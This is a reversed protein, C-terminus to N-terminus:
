LYLSQNNMIFKMIQQKGQKIKDLLEYNEVYECISTIENSIHILKLCCKVFDGLFFEGKFKNIFQLCSTEDNCESMWTYIYDYMVYQLEIHDMFGMEQEEYYHMRKKIFEINSDKPADVQEAKLDYFCSLLSFLSCSTYQKFGNTKDYLDCFLLLHIENVMCAMKGKETLIHNKMFFNDELIRYITDLKQDIYTEAYNKYGIENRIKQENEKRRNNYEIIDEYEKMKKRIEKQKKRSALDFHVVLAEYEKCRIMLMEDECYQKLDQITKNSREIESQIDM